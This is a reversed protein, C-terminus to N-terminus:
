GFGHWFLQCAPKGCRLNSTARTGKAKGHKWQSLHGLCFLFVHGATFSEMFDLRPFVCYMRFCVSARSFPGVYKVLMPVGRKWGVRVRTALYGFFRHPGLVKPASSFFSDYDVRKIILHVGGVFMAVSLLDRSSAKKIKWPVRGFRVHLCPHLRHEFFPYIRGRKKTSQDRVM